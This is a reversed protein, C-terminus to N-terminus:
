VLQEFPEDIVMKLSVAPQYLALDSAQLLILQALELVVSM